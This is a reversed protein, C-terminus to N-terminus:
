GSQTALFAILISLTGIVLVKHLGEKDSAAGLAWVVTVPILTAHVPARTFWPVTGMVWPLLVMTAAQILGVGFFAVRKEYFHDRWSTVSEPNDSVLIGIRVLILGPVALGWVFRVPSWVVDRLNWIGWWTAVSALLVTIVWLAHIWYRREAAFVSPLSGIARSLAFSYVLAIAVSVYEFQSM